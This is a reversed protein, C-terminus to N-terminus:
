QIPHSCRPHWDISHCAYVPSASAVPSTGVLQHLTQSKLHEELAMGHPKTDDSPTADPLDFTHKIRYHCQTSVNVVLGWSRSSSNLKHCADSQFTILRMKLMKFCWNWMRWIRSSYLITMWAWSGTASHAIWLKMRHYSGSAKKVQLECLPIEGCLRSSNLWSYKTIPRCICCFSPSHILTMIIDSLIHPFIVLVFKCLM